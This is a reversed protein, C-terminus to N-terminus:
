SASRYGLRASVARAAHLTHGILGLNEELPDMRNAPGSVSIAAVVTGDIDFIPAAVCRVEIEHEGRDLAYGRQRVEELHEMLSSVDCLTDATYRKLGHEEYYTRVQRADEYALLIKGLGTCYAPARGGVRSSMLGIAHHGPLKELYVVEMENLIALHVTEGTEDRLRQLEPLALQRLDSSDHYARALELCRLGLRYRGDKRDREVLHHSSLNALLRFVTSSNIGLGGSIETLTRPRGDSLLDLVQIARDLVRINYRDKREM